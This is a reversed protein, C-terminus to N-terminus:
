KIYEYEKLYNKIDINRITDMMNIYKITKVATNEDGGGNLEFLLRGKDFENLKDIQSLALEKLQPHLNSIHLYSPNYVFNYDIQTDKFFDRFEGINCINYISITQTISIEFTEKKAKQFNEYVTKWNAPYRIYFNRDGVDDISLQLKVHKFQKILDIFVDPLNTCNINYLLTVNKALDMEILKNLFYFHEKILTPEGGNIYVTELIDCHTLLQDYWDKNKYWEGKYEQYSYHGDKAFEDPFSKVDEIWKSSSMPNCTLCKLNCVNGLRLEVFRLQINPIDENFDLKHLYKENEEIRKSKFGNEENRYCGICEIPKEGNMMKRRIESFSDSNMIDQITNDNLSLIQENTRAFSIGNDYNANCCPTVLGNPHTALHTFPLSCLTDLNREVM